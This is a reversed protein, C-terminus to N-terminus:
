VNSQVAVTFSSASLETDSIHPAADHLIYVQVTCCHAEFARGGLSPDFKRAAQMKEIWQMILIIMMVIMMM